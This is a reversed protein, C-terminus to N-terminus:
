AGCAGCPALGKREITARSVTAVPKGVALQCGPLHFLRMGPASVWRPPHAPDSGTAASSLETEISGGFRAQITDAVELKLFRVRALGATEWAVVAVAGVAAGASGVVLWVFQRNVHTTHAAGYWTVLFVILSVALRMLLRSVDAVQWPADIVFAAFPQGIASRDSSAGAITRRGFSGKPRLSPLPSV